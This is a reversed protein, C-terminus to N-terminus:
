LFILRATVKLAGIIVALRIFPISAMKLEGLRFTM